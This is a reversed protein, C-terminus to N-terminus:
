DDNPARHRGTSVEPERGDGALSEIAALNIRAPDHHDGDSPAGPQSATPNPVDLALEVDTTAPIVQTAGTDIGAFREDLPPRQHGTGAATAIARLQRVTSEIRRAARARAEDIVRAETAQRAFGPPRTRSILALQGNATRIIRQLDDNLYDALPATEATLRSLEQPWLGGTVWPTCDIFSDFSPITLSEQTASRLRQRASGWCLFPV